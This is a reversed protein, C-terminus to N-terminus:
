LNNIEYRDDVLKMPTSASLHFVEGKSTECYSYAGDIHCFIADDVEGDELKIRLPSNKKLEYLKM